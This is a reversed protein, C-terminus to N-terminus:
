DHFERKKGTFWSEKKDHFVLAIIAILMVLTTFISGEMGYDGGSIIPNGQVTSLLLTSSTSPTSGSVCVGFIHAQTFNWTTHFASAVWINDYVFVCISCFVGFLFLNIFPLIGYSNTNHHWISFYVSSVLIAIFPKNKRVTSLLFAGRFLMEEGFGQIIYSFFLIAFSFVKVDLLNNSFRFGKTLFALMVSVCIIILGYCGGKLWDIIAKPSFLVGLQHLDMQEWVVCYLIAGVALFIMAFNWLGPINSLSKIDHSAIFRYVRNSFYTVTYVVFHYKFLEVWFSRGGDNKRVTLVVKSRDFM